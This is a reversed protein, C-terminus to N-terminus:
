AQRLNTFKDINLRRAVLGVEQHHQETWRGLEGMDGFVVIKKGQRKSLLELATLVSRLNANYTDDILVSQNKGSVFTMRGKVGAFNSLGKQIDKLSIGVAYSCASAALANQVNHLGPVKLEIEEHGEPTIM